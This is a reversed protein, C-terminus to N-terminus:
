FLSDMYGSDYGKYRRREMINEDTSPIEGVIALLPIVIVAGVALGLVTVLIECTKADWTICEIEEEHLPEPRMPSNPWPLASKPEVVEFSITNGNSLYYFSIVAVFFILLTKM